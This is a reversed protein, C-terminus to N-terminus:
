TFVAYCRAIFISVSLQPPIKKRTGGASSTSISSMSEVKTKVETVETSLSLVHKQLADTTAKTDDVTKKQEMFMSLMLDLKQNININQSRHGGSTSPTTPPTMSSYTPPLSFGGGYFSGAAPDM